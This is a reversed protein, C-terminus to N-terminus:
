SIFTLIDQNLSDFKRKGYAEKSSSFHLGFWGALASHIPRKKNAMSSYDSGIALSILSFRLLGDGLFPWLSLPSSFVALLLHKVHQALSGNLNCM